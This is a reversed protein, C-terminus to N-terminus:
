NVIVSAQVTEALRQALGNLDKAAREIQQMAAVTQASSQEINQMAMAIQNIGAEQQGAAATIQQAALSAENVSATLTAIAHGSRQATATGSEAAKVGQEAAMVTAQASKQLDAVIRRVQGTAEKCREALAKVETAVVAFGKGAEGAKAAEIGANVALLNSQEALEGVTTNIEAIAEAQESFTLVREALAEMRAKAAESGRISEEVSKSGDEAIASMKQAMEAVMRAKMSAVEATQRVEAVTTSTQRVAAAEEATASVQQSTAALIEATASAVSDVAGRIERVLQGLSATMRNLDVGLQGLEGKGTESVRARLDGAAVQSALGAFEQVAQELELKGTRETEFRRQLEEAMRNVSKALTRVEAAGEEPAREDLKGDAIRGATVRLADIPRIVIRSLLFAATGAVGIAVLVWIMVQGYRELIAQNAESLTHSSWIKWGVSPITAFGGVREVGTEDVYAEMRGESARKVAPWMSLRSFDERAQVRNMDPHAIVIGDETTVVAHGTEGYHFQEAIESLQDVSSTMSVVGILKGTQDYAPAAMAIILKGSTKGILVERNIVAQRTAIVDKFYDRDAVSNGIVSPGNEVTPPDAAVIIGNLDIATIRDIHPKNAHFRELMPSLNLIDFSSLLRTTQGLTEIERLQATLSNDVLQALRKAFVQARTIDNEFTWSRVTLLSGAGLVVAPVIASLLAGAVIVIRLSRNEFVRKIM